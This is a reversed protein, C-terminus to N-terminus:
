ANIAPKEKSALAVRVEGPMQGYLPRVAALLLSMLIVGSLTLLTSALPSVNNLLIGQLWPLVMAGISAMGNVITMAKGPQAPFASGTLSVVSPFISGFSFGTLLVGAASLPISGIGLVLLLSGALAGGMSFALIRMGSLRMGLWVTVLRGITLALWFGSAALAATELSLPTTRNMHVTIWGGLGSEVGVYLLLLAALLWILRSRLLSGFGGAEANEEVPRPPIRLPFFLLFQIAVLGCVLWLIMRGQGFREIAYGVLAPSFFAGLGFFLNLLNLASVSRRAFVRAVLINATLVIGGAGLGILTFLTMSLAFNASYPLAAFCATLLLASGLLLPKEGVRDSLPGSIFQGFLAGLFYFTYLGGIATLSVQNLLALEPLLPGYAAVSTGLSFFFLCCLLLITYRHKRTIV